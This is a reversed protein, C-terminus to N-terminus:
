TVLTCITFFYAIHYFRLSVCTIAISIYHTCRCPVHMPHFAFINNQKTPTIILKKIIEIIGILLPIQVRSVKKKSCWSFDVKNENQYTELKTQVLSLKHLMPHLIFNGTSRYNYYRQIFLFFYFYFYLTFHIVTPHPKTILTSMNSCM